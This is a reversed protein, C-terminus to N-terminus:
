DCVSLTDKRTPISQDLLQANYILARDPMPFVQIFRVQTNGPLVVRKNLLRGFYKNLKRDFRSFSADDAHDEQLNGLSIPPLPSSLLVQKIQTQVAQLEDM